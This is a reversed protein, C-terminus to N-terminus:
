PRTLLFGHSDEDVPELINIFDINHRLQTWYTYLPQLFIGGQYAANYFDFPAAEPFIAKLHPPKQTAAMIQTVGQYSGGVMGIAGNSWPQKALWETITYADQREIPSLMGEFWGFSAATGRVAVAVFVYGYRILNQVEEERIATTLTGNPNVYVRQYPTDTWIVPLKEQTPQCNKAPVLIDTALKAGDPMRIYQSKRIWSDYSAQSYGQYKGFVSIKIPNAISTLPQMRHCSDALVISSFSIVGIFILCKLCSM